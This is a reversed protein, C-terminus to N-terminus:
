TRIIDYDVIAGASVRGSMEYVRMLRGRVNKEADFHGEMIQRGDEFLAQRKEPHALLDMVIDALKECDREAIFVERLPGTSFELIDKTGGIMNARAPSHSM